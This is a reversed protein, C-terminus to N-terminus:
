SYRLNRELSDKKRLGSNRSLSINVPNITFPEDATFKLVNNWIQLNTRTLAWTVMQYGTEYDDPVFDRFSGNVIKDYSYPKKNELTLAKLRNRSHRLGDEEQNLLSQNLLFLM